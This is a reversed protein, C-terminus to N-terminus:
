VPRDGTESITDPGGMPLARWTGEQLAKSMDACLGRLARLLWEQPNDVGLGPWATTLEYVTEPAGYMEPWGMVELTVAIQDMVDSVYVTAMYRM